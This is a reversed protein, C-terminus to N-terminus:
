STPLTFFFRSGRGVESELWMKGGHLEVFRKALTLGLGTGQPKGSDRAAQQFEHFIKQQDQQEIGPGTDGVEVRVAGDDSVARMWVTGGEPSFKVANALLNILVQKVRAADM